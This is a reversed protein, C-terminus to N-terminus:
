RPGLLSRTKAELWRWVPQPEPGLTLLATRGAPGWEPDPDGFDESTGGWAPTFDGNALGATVSAQTRRGRSGAAGWLTSSLQWKPHIITDCWRILLQMLLHPLTDGPHRWLSTPAGQCPRWLSRGHAGSEM